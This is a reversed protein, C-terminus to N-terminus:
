RMDISEPAYKKLADMIIKSSEPRVFMAIPEGTVHLFSGSTIGVVCQEDHDYIPGGSFGKSIYGEVYWYMRGEWPVPIDSVTAASTRQIYRHPWGYAVYEEGIQNKQCFVLPKIKSRRVGWVRLLAMDSTYDVALVTARRSKLPWDPLYVKIDKHGEIVHAATVVIGSEGVFFGTGIHRGSELVGARDVTVSAVCKVVPDILVERSNELDSSYPGPSCGVLIAAVLVLAFCFLATIFLWRAFDEM